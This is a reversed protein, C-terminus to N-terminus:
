TKKTSKRATGKAVRGAYKKIFDKIKLFNKSEWAIGAKEVQEDFEASPIKLSKYIGKIKDIDNLQDITLSKDEPEIKTKLFDIVDRAQVKTLDKTSEITVKFEKGVLAYFQEDSLGAKDMQIHLMQQQKITSMEIGGSKKEEPAKETIKEKAPAKEAKAEVTTKEVPMEVEQKKDQEPEDEISYVEHEESTYPMGGLEDPFALRFGQAIAVKKGMFNPMQKWTAQGKNFESLIVEWYFPIKWGKKFIRVFAKKGDETIGAEWGELRGTREARKLYVDYGTVIQLSKHSDYKILHVERKFPNLNLSTIVGLAMHLEADNALPCLYNKIEQKTIVVTEQKVFREIQKESAVGVKESKEKAM